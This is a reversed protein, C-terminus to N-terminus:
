AASLTMKINYTYVGSTGNGAYASIPTFQQGTGSTIEPLSLSLQVFVVDNEKWELVKWTDPSPVTADSNKAREADQGIVSEVIALADSDSMNAIAYALQSAINAGAADEPATYVGGALGSLFETNSNTDMHEVFDTDNSIAATAQVHGFIEHAALALALAGITPYVRYDEANANYKDADFPQAVAAGVDESARTDLPHASGATFCAHLAEILPNTGDAITLSSYGPADLENKSVEAVRTNPATSPEKFRWMGTAADIGTTSDVGGNASYFVSLPLPQMAVIVEQPEPASEGFVSIAGAATAGVNLNVTVNNSM